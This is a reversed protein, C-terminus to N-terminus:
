GAEVMRWGGVGLLQPLVPAVAAVNLRQVHHGERVRAAEAADDEDGEFRHPPCGPHPTSKMEEGAMAHNAHAAKQRGESRIGIWGWM